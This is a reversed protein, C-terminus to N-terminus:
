KLSAGVQAALTVAVLRQASSPHADPGATLLFRGQLRGGSEVLLEIDVDTPLGNREVDWVASEREVEGDDRLRAPHGLGAVGYQFRCARLGLVRTLQRSVEEILDQSSSGAAVAEAAARIGDLYGADRYAHARQRHGWAALETVGVGVALLLTTTELDARDTITIREFPRTLFVDFWLAASLAALVGAVRNGTSAVAVIVLVLILAANTNAFNDRFPVLALSIALPGALAGLVALRNPHSLVRSVPSASEDTVLPAQRM